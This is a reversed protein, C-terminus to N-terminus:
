QDALFAPVQRPGSLQLFVLGNYILAKQQCISGSLSSALCSLFIYLSFFVLHTVTNGM